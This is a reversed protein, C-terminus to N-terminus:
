VGLQLVCQEREKECFFRSTEHPKVFLDVNRQTLLNDRNIRAETQIDLHNIVAIIM